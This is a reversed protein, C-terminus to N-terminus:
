SQSAAARKRLRYFTSRSLGLRTRIVEAREGADRDQLQRELRAIRECLQRTTPRRTDRREALEQVVDRVLDAAHIVLEPPAARGALNEDLLAGLLLRVYGLDTM